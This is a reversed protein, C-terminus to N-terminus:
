TMNMSTPPIATPYYGTSASKGEFRGCRQSYYSAGTYFLSPLGNEAEPKVKTPDFGASMASSPATEQENRGHSFLEVQHSRPDPDGEYIPAPYYQYSKPETIAKAEEATIMPEMTLEQHHRGSGYSRPDYPGGYGGQLMSPGGSSYDGSGVMNSAYSGPGAISNGGSGGHGGSSSSPRRESQYHGPSRGRVIMKASKRYAIRVFPDGSAQQQSGTDAWLEVILHYYQQAARRKGNNATAQKFQIREFTHESSLTSQSQGFGQDYPRSSGLDSAPPNNYMSSIPHHSSQPPKPSLRVKEPKAIPGKDRKPTHQVLEIALNDNEAVVASICMAFGYVQFLQQGNTQVFTMGANPYSPNPPSLTFSCVCSFYNRRYCTWENEALFFGKDIVGNIDVKIPTQQPDQYSLHGLSVLPNLPPINQQAKSGYGADMRLPSYTAPSPTPSLPHRRIAPFSPSRPLHHDPQRRYSPTAPTYLDRASLQTGPHPLTTSRPAHAMGTGSTSSNSGLRPRVDLGSLFTPASSYFHSGEPPYAAVAPPVLNIFSSPQAPAELTSLSNTSDQSTYRM